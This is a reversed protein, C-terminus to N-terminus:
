LRFKMRTRPITTTRSSVLVRVVESYFIMQFLHTSSKNKYHTGIFLQTVLFRDIGLLIVCRGQRVDLVNEETMRPRCYNFMRTANAFCLLCDLEACADCAEAIAEDFELIRELLAQM